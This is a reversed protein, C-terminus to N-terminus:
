DLKNGKEDYRYFGRGSKRGLHGAAVMQRLLPAARFKPDGIGRQLVDMVGLMFFANGSPTVFTWRDGIKKVSFSDSPEAVKFAVGGYPDPATEQSAAYSAFCLAFVAVVLAGQKM